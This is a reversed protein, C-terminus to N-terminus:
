KLLTHIRNIPIQTLLKRDVKGTPNTPLAAVEYLYNPIMATPLHKLLGERIEEKSTLDHGEQLKYFAYLRLANNVTEDERVIVAIESIQDLKMFSSEVDPIEMRYGNVKVQNDKRGLNVLRGDEMLYGYDGSRFFQTNDTLRKLVEETKDKDGWYGSFINSTNLCIEGEVNYPCPNGEPDQITLNLEKFPIGVPIQQPVVTEHVIPDFSISGTESSGLNSYYITGKKFHKKFQEIDSHRSPEGGPTVSRISTIVTEEDLSNIFSRYVSTVSHFITIKNAILWSALADIGRQKLQYFCFCSGFQMSAYFGNLFGMFAGSYVSLYRDSSKLDIGKGRRWGIYSISRHNHLVGKPKGTTGSTFLIVAASYPEIHTPLLVKDIQATLQDISITQAKSKKFVQEAKKLLRDDTIALDAGSALIIANTRETPHDPDLPIYFNGSKLVALFTACMSYGNSLYVAIGHGAGDLTQTIHTGIFDSYEDLEKYSYFRGNSMIAQENKFTKVVEKFRNVPSCIQSEPFPLEISSSSHTTKNTNKNCIEEIIQNTHEVVNKADEGYMLTLHDGPVEIIRLGLSARKTWGLEYDLERRLLLQKKARLLILEGEFTGYDYVRRLNNQAADEIGMAALQDDRVTRSSRSNLKKLLYIMKVGILSSVNTLNLRANNRRYTSRGFRFRIVLRKLRNFLSGTFRPQYYEKGRAITDYVILLEIEDGTAKLQKAVEWAFTGGFSYGCLRYPGEAQIDKIAKIKYEAIEEVSKYNHQGSSSVRPELCYCPQDPKLHKSFERYHFIGGIAPALVFLPTQNGKIQLPTVIARKEEKEFTAILKAFDALVPAKYVTGAPILFGTKHEVALSMNIAALSDGGLEFFHSSATVEKSPLFELWLSVLIEEIESLQKM